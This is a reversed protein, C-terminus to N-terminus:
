ISRARRDSTSGTITFFDSTLGNSFDKTYSDDTVPTDPEEGGIVPIIATENKKCVTCTRSKVGTETATAAKVM